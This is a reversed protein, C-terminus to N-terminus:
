REVEKPLTTQHETKGDEYVGFQIACERLCHACLTVDQLGRRFSHAFADSVDSKGCLDCEAMSMNM